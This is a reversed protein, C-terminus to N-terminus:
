WASRGDDADGGLRERGLELPEQRVGLPPRLDGGGSGVVDAAVVIRPPDGLRHERHVKV